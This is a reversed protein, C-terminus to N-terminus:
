SRAHLIRTGTNEADSRTINPHRRYIYLDKSSEMHALPFMNMLSSVGPVMGLVATTLMRAHYKVTQVPSRTRKHSRGLSSRM